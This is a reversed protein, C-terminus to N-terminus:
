VVETAVLQTLGIQDDLVDVTTRQQRRNVAARRPGQRHRPHEVDHQLERVRQSMRVALPNHVAVDLGFVDHQGTM